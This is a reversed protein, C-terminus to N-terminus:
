VKSERMAKMIDHSGFGRRLLFQYTRRFEKEDADEAVYHRKELLRYIQKLEEAEYEEELARDIVERAIGKQSLKRKIQLRSFREQYLRTYTCAYRLDDIYHYRKVYEMAAEICEDPYGGMVLKERLQYETRDMRELLHMARKTARRTIVEDILRRYNEEGIAANEALRFQKAESRYVSLEAGNDFRIRLKGKGLAEYETVYIM